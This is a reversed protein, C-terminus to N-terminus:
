TRWEPESRPGTAPHRSSNLPGFRGACIRTPVAGAVAIQDTLCTEECVHVVCFRVHTRVALRRNSVCSAKSRPVVTSVVVGCGGDCWGLWWNRLLYGSRTPLSGCRGTITGSRLHDRNQAHNPSSHTAGFGHAVHGVHLPMATHPSSLRMRVPVPDFEGDHSTRTSVPHAQPGSVGTRCRAEMRSSM